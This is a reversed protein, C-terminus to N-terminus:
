AGMRWALPWCFPNRFQSTQGRIKLSKQMNLQSKLKQHKSNMDADLRFVFKLITNRDFCFLVCFCCHFFGCVGFWM